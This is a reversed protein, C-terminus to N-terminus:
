RKTPSSLKGPDHDRNGESKYKHKVWQQYEIQMMMLRNEIFLQEADTLSPRGRLLAQVRSAVQHLDQLVTENLSIHQLPGTVERSTRLM